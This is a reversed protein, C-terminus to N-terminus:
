DLIVQRHKEEDGDGAERSQLGALLLQLQPLLADNLAGSEFEWRM